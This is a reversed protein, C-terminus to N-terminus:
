NGNDDINHSRVLLLLGESTIHHGQGLRLSRDADSASSNSVSDGNRKYLTKSTRYGSAIIITNM